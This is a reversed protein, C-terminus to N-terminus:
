SSLVEFEVQSAKLRRDGADDNVGFSVLEAFSHSAKNDVKDSLEMSELGWVGPPSGVPLVVSITYSEVAAPDGDFFESHFNRIPASM